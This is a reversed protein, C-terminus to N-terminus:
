TQLACSLVTSVDPEPYGQIQKLFIDYLLHAHLFATKVDFSMIELDFHNAYALLIWVSSLKVVPAYTTGFDEPQQSFGQAILCAKEKGWIISGDPNYKYDYTWWIGVAKHGPPLTTQEFAKENGSQWTGTAYGSVM